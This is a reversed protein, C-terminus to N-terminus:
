NKWSIRNSRHKWSLGHRSDRRVEPDSGVWHPAIFFLNSGSVFVRASAIKIREVVSSPLRYSINAEQLRVFGYSQLATFRSNDSFSYSPYKNSPKEPTWFPHDLTNRNAYGEYTQYAMNNQALGYGNGGFTGNLLFYLQVAGLTFTNRMSMSMRFNDKRYGLIERDTETIKGDASGDLNAYMADGPKSGNAAMYDTDTEQVIGIWKYGYIAGLSKGLFLSNPVTLANGSISSTSPLGTPIRMLLVGTALAVWSAWTQQLM